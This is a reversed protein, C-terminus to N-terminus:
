AQFNESADPVQPGSARSPSGSSRERMKRLDIVTAPHALMAFPLLASMGKYYDAYYDVASRNEAGDSGEHL